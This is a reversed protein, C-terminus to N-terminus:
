EMGLEESQAVRVLEEPTTIGALIKLKGDELLPRMGNAVAARRIESVPAQNFALTRITSDMELLEFIGQRGRYGTGGCSQCGQGRYFTSNAIEEKSFGLLRLVKPDVNPDEAKCDKCIVRVLRQGMVAQISSAVLFPKVGMDIL